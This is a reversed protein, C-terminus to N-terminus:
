RCAQRMPPHPRMRSQSIRHRQRLLQLARARRVATLRDGVVLRARTLADTWARDRQVLAEYLKAAEDPEDAALAPVRPRAASNPPRQGGPDKKAKM